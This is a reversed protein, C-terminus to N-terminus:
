KFVIEAMLPLHDSPFDVSPLAYHKTISSTSPMDLVGVVELSTPCYFIYDLCLKCLYSQCADDCNTIPPESGLATKYASKLKNELKFASSLLDFLEVARILSAEEDPKSGCNKMAEVMKLDLYGHSLLRYVVSDPQTNFDGCIVQACHFGKAFEALEAAALSVPIYQACRKDGVSKKM